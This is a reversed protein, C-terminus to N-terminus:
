HPVFIGQLLSTRGGRFMAFVGRGARVFAPAVPMHSDLISTM